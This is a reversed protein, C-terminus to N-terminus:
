GEQLRKALVPAHQLGLNLAPLLKRIHPVPLLHLCVRGCLQAQHNGKMARSRKVAVRGEQLEGFAAGPKDPPLNPLLTIGTETQTTYAPPTCTPAPPTHRPPSSARADRSPCGLCRLSAASAEARSSVMVSTVSCVFLCLFPGFYFLELQFVAHSFDQKYPYRHFLPFCLPLHIVQSLPACQLWAPHRTPPPLDSGCPLLAPPVGLGM